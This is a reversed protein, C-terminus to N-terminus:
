IRSNKPMVHSSGILAGCEPCYDLNARVDYGCQLCLGEALRTAIIAHRRRVLMCPAVVAAYLGIWVALVFWHPGEIPAFPHSSRLLMLAAGPVSGPALVLDGGKIPPRLGLVYACTLTMVAAAYSAVIHYVLWRTLRHM